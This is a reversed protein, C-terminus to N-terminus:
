HSKGLVFCDGGAWPFLSFKSFQELFHPFTLFSAAMHWHYSTLLRLLILDIVADTDPEDLQIFLPAPEVEYGGGQKFMGRQLAPM